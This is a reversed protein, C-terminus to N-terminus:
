FQNTMDSSEESASRPIWYTQAHSDLSLLLLDKRMCRLIIAAPTFVLYFLLGTVILNVLKSFLLSIEASILNLPGLLSPRSLAALLLSGGLALCWSRITQQHCLPRLGFFLFLAAFMMGFNRDSLRRRHIRRGLTEDTPSM